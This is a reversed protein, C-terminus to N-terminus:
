GEDHVEPLLKEWATRDVTGVREYFDPVMHVYYLTDEYRAHGMYASLFPLMADIDRGERMWRCICETAFTHRFDYVRPKPGEFATIGAMSFCRWFMEETWRKTYPGERALECDLCDKEPFREVCFDDFRGLIRISENYPFGLSNKYGVFARIQEGFRSKLSPRTM